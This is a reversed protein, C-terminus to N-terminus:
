RQRDRYTAIQEPLGLHSNVIVPAIFHRVLPREDKPLSMSGTRSGRIHGRRLHPAVHRGTSTEDLTGVTISGHDKLYRVAVGSPGRLKAAVREQRRRQPRPLRLGPPEVDTLGFMPIVQTIVRAMTLARQIMPYLPKQDEPAQDVIEPRAEWGDNGGMRLWSVTYLGRNREWCILSAWAGELKESGFGRIDHVIVGVHDLARHGVEYPQPFLICAGHPLTTDDPMTEFTPDPDTHWLAEHQAPSLQIVPMLGLGILYPTYFIIPLAGDSFEWASTGPLRAERVLGAMLAGPIVAPALPWESVRENLAPAIVDFAIRKVAERGFDEALTQAAVFLAEDCRARALAKLQPDSGQARLERPDAGSYALLEPETM